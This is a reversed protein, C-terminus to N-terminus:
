DPGWIGLKKARKEIEEMADDDLFSEGCETCILGEYKGLSIGLM